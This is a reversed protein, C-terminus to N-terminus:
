VLELTAEIMELHVQKKEARLAITSETFYKHQKFFKVQVLNWDNETELFHKAKLERFLQHSIPFFDERGLYDLDADAIIEELKTQPAQPIRTANIMGCVQEIQHKNLGFGPLEERALDCGVEEHTNYTFIFGTDHYLCAIGLLFLDEPNTINEAAAIRGAQEQVDITHEVCHYYLDHSLQNSLKKLVHTRITEITHTAHM